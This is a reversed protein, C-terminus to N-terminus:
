GIRLPSKRKRIEEEWNTHRIGKEERIGQM